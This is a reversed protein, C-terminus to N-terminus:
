RIDDRAEFGLAELRRDFEAARDRRALWLILWRNNLLTARPAYNARLWPSDFYPETWEWHRSWSLVAQMPDEGPRFVMYERIETSTDLFVIDPREREWFAPDLRKDWKRRPAPHRPGTAVNRDVFGQVDLSVGDYFYFVSAVELSAMRSRRGDATLTSFFRGTAAHNNLRSVTMAEVGHATLWVTRDSDRAPLIMGQAVELSGSGLLSAAFGLCAAAALPVPRPAPADPRPLCAIAAFVLAATLVVHYRSGPFYDGGGWAVLGLHLAGPALWPALERLAGPAAFRAGAALVLLYPAADRAYELFTAGVAGASPYSGAKMLICTPVFHGYYLRWFALVGVVGLLSAGYLAAARRWPREASRACALVLLAGTAVTYFSFDYRCFPLLGTLLFTWPWRPSRWTLIAVVSLAGLMAASWGSGSHRGFAPLTAALTAIAWAWGHSATRAYTERYLLFVAFAVCVGGLALAGLPPPVGALRGAGLAVYFLGDGSGDVNRDPYFSYRGHEALNRSQTMTVFTEDPFQHFPISLLLAALALLLACLRAPVPAPLRRVRPIRPLLFAALPLLAALAVVAYRMGAVADVFATPLYDASLGEIRGIHHVFAGDASM